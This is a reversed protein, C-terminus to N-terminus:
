ARKLRRWGGARNTAAIWRILEVFAREDVPRGEHLKITRGTANDFGDTIILHPDPALGGEYLFVSLHDKTSQMACVVGQCLFYPRNGYRVEELIEPEAEHVLERVRSALGAQWGPFADISSTVRPHHPLADDGM